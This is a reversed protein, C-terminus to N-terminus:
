RINNVIDRTPRRAFPKMNKNNKKIINKSTEESELSLKRMLDGESLLEEMRREGDRISDLMFSLRKGPLSMEKLHALTLTNSDSDLAFSYADTFWNKLTGICGLSYKYFFEWDSDVLNESTQEFPM